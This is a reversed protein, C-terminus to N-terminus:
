LRVGTSSYSQSIVFTKPNQGKSLGLQVKGRQVAEEIEEARTKMGTILRQMQCKVLIKWTERRDTFSVFIIRVCALMWTLGIAALRLKIKVM